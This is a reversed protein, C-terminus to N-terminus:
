SITKQVEEYLANMEDVVLRVRDEQLTHLSFLTLSLSPALLCPPFTFVKCYLCHFRVFAM